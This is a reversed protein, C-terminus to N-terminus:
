AAEQSQQYLATELEQLAALYAPKGGFFGVIELPTGIATLPDVKLIELSEISTIGTDAYKALLADLVLRAQDGYKAFVHRKKVKEARERRTLPPQDFAVHCILDFADYDRGVQEALEDFFVGRASLEEIIAQKKEADNWVALFSDLSAYSERVAKRSYDKLSETILKGNADLYQVRETAVRVEVNHVFYRIAGTPGANYPTPDERIISGDATDHRDVEDPPTLPDDVSPEFIQVPDGDFDPDAFLATARRFDMITFFLKGYDENIRTGRGIIQKFETMSNIARDLVILHCTQADVGTTM